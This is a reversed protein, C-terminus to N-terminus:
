LPAPPELPVVGPTRERLAAYSWRLFSGGPRVTYPGRVVCTRGPPQPFVSIGVGDPLLTLTLETGPELDPPPNLRRELAEMNARLRADLARREDETMDELRRVEFADATVNSRDAFTSRKRAMAAVTAGGNWSPRSRMRSALDEPTVHALYRSTVALSSHGLQAQVEPLPAGERVLEVAHTHRLAHPHVRKQVGARRALRKVMARVYGSDLPGGELTCLLPQYGNFGFASRRARWAEVTGFAEPDMAVTRPKGGKGCRVHVLGSRPELDAERLALAEAVRLGARWLLVLLARNRAGTPGRNCSRLLAHLDPQSLVQGPLKRGGNTNRM